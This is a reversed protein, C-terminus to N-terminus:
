LRPAYYEVVLNSQLVFPAVGFPYAAVKASMAEVDRSLWEPIELAPRAWSQVVPSLARVKDKLSIVIGPRVAYSVRDVRAGNVLVHGHTVLQRAAPISPAMGARFVVNDLRRELLAVINEDAKGAMHRAREVINRLQRETVGYHYRLKQKEVLQKRFNSPKRRAGLKAGHQGPPYPRRDPRKPSLGPLDCDLARMIRLRPGTYRSM